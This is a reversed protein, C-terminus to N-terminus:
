GTSTVSRVARVIADDSPFVGATKEAVKRDGVWVSFEGRNGEVIEADLHLDSKLRAAV